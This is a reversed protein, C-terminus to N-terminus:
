GQLLEIDTFVVSGTGNYNVWFVLYNFVLRNMPTATRETMLNYYVVVTYEGDGIPTFTYQLGNSSADRLSVTINRVNTMIINFRVAYTNQYNKYSSNTYQVDQKANTATGVGNEITIGSNWTQTGSGSFDAAFATESAGITETYFEMNDFQFSWAGSKAADSIDIRIRLSDIKQRDLVGSSGDAIKMGAFDCIMCTTNNNSIGNDNNDYFNKVMYYYNGSSGVTVNVTAIVGVRANQVIGGLNPSVDMRFGNVNSFDYTLLDYGTANLTVSRAVSYVQMVHNEGGGSTKISVSSSNGWMAQVESDQSINEFDDLLTIPTALDARNDETYETANGISIDGVNINATSYGSTLYYFSIANVNELEVDGEFASFPITVYCPDDINVAVYASSYDTGDNLRVQMRVNAERGRVYFRLGSYDRLDKGDPIAFGVEGEIGRTFTLQVVNRGSLYTDSIVSATAGTTSIASPVDTYDDMNYLIDIAQSNGAYDILKQTTQANFGMPEKLLAQTAVYSISREIADTYVVNGNTDCIYSRATISTEYDTAPIGYLVARYKYIGNDSFPVCLIDQVTKVTKTELTLEENEELHSSPIVLTGCYSVDELSTLHTEFRIGSPASLRVSAGIIQYTSEAKASTVTFGVAMLASALLCVVLLIKQLKIIIKDTM